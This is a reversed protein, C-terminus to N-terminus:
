TLLDSFVKAHFRSLTHPPLVLDILSARLLLPACAGLGYTCIHGPISPPSTHLLLYSWLPSMGHSESTTTLVKIKSQSPSGDSPNQASSHCSVQMKLPNSQSSQQPFHLVTGSATFGSSATILIGPLFFTPQSWSSTAQLHSPKLLADANFTSGVSNMRPSSTHPIRSLPSDYCWDNM